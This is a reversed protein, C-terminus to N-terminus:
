RSISSGLVFRPKFECGIRRGQRSIWLVSGFLWRARALLLMQGGGIKTRELFKLNLAFAARAVQGM